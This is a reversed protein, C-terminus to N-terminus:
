EGLGGECGRDSDPHEQKNDTEQVLFYVGCSGPKTVAESRQGLLYIAAQGEAPREPGLTPSAGTPSVNPYTTLLIVPNQGASSSHSILAPLYTFLPKGAAETTFFDGALAPSTPKIGATPLDGPSPFPLGSWYEPRPFGTFLPAPHAVTSPSM